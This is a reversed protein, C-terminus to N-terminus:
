LLPQESEGKERAEKSQSQERVGAGVRKGNVEGREKGHEHDAAVGRGKETGRM